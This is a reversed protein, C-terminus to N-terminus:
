TLKCRATIDGLTGPEDRGIAALLAQKDNALPLNAENPFLDRYSEARVLWVPSDPLVVSLLPTLGMREREQTGQTFGFLTGSTRVARIKAGTVARNKGTQADRIAIVRLSDHIRLFRGRRESDLRKLLGQSADLIAQQNSDSLEELQHDLVQLWDRLTADDPSANGSLAPELRPLLLLTTEVKWIARLVSDPLDSILTLRRAPEVLEFLRRSKETYQRLAASGAALLGARFLTVLRLQLKETQLFPKAYGELFDFLYDMRPGDTFLGSVESLLNDLENEQWQPYRNSLCPAEADYMLLGTTKLRTFVQWPRQADSEPPTPLPRIRDLGVSNVRKWKPEAGAEMIRFWSGSRCVYSKFRQFWDSDKLAKTLAKSDPDTLRIAAVYHELTPIVLPLLVRQALHQNWTRRLVADDISEAIVSVPTHHLNELAHPKKRGADIFFQGHLVLTHNLSSNELTLKETGQEVPLFVAWHLKSLTKSAPGRCFIVAAEPRTRDSDDQEQWNEDRYRSRPWEHRNKLGSFIEQPDQDQLKMGAFHMLQKSDGLRLTIQGKSCEAAPDNLLRQDVKLELTFPSREGRHEIRELHKLLPLFEALDIPLHIDDLFKLDPHSDDDGAFRRIIPGIDKGLDNRLHAQRRLPVWLLFWSAVSASASRKALAELKEWDSAHNRNWEPHPDRDDQKWPNLGKRHLEQGDWALYFFAECLHFVSKMGLGFKGIASADGAKSNIGFSRLARADTSKFEGDNFFWLGPGTLLPHGADPFGEHYAFIFSRAKADDANQILEKLIPFGNDYRDRLNDVILNIYDTTYGDM